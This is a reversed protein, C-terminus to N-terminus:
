FQNVVDWALRQIRAADRKSLSELKIKNGEQPTGFQTSLIYVEARYSVNIFGNPQYSPFM